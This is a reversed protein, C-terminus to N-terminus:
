AKVVAHASIVIAWPTADPRRAMACHLMMPAPTTDIDFTRFDVESKLLRELGRYLQDADAVLNPLLTGRISAPDRGLLEAYAKTCVRQRLELDLVAVAARTDDGVAWEVLKDLSCGLEDISAHERAADGLADVVRRRVNWASQQRAVQTRALGVREAVAEAFEVDEPTYPRGAEDRMLFLAGAEDDAIVPVCIISFCSGKVLYEHAEPGVSDRVQQQPVQPVFVPKRSSAVARAFELTNQEERAVWGMRLEVHPAIHAVHAVELEGGDNPMTLVAGDGVVAVALRTARELFPDANLSVAELMTDLAALAGSRSVTGPAVANPSEDPVSDAAREVAARQAEFRELAADSIEYGAGVKVAVLQGSRV